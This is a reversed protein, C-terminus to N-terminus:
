ENNFIKNLKKKKKDESTKTKNNIEKIIIKNNDPIHTITIWVRYM